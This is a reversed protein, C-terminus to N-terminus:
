SYHSFQFSKMYIGNMYLNDENISQELGSDAMGYVEYYVSGDASQPELKESSMISSIDSAQEM